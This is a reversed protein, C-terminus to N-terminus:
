LRIASVQAGDNRPAAPKTAIWPSDGIARLSFHRQAGRKRSSQRAESAIVAPYLHGITSLTAGNFDYVMKM